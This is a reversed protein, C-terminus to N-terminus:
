PGDIVRVTRLITDCPPQEGSCRGFAVGRDTPIYLTTWADNPFTFHVLTAEEAGGLALREETHATPPVDYDTTAAIYEAVTSRPDDAYPGAFEITTDGPRGYPPSDDRAFDWPVYSSVRADTAATYSHWEIPIDLAIRLGTKTSMEVTRKADPRVVPPADFGAAAYEMAAVYVRDDRGRALVLRAEGRRDAGWGRSFLVAVIPNAPDFAGRLTDTVPPLTAPPTVFALPAASPPRFTRGFRQAAEYAGVDDSGSEPVYRIVFGESIQEYLADLDRRELADTLAAIAPSGSSSSTGAPSDVALDAPAPYPADGAAAAFGATALLMGHWYVRGGADEALVLVAEGAGDAGWGRSFLLQDVVLAPDLLTQLPPDIAPFATRDDTTDVAHAAPPLYQTELATRAASPDLTMGEARYVGLVFADGMMAQLGAYDRSALAARLASLTAPVRAMPTGRPGAAADTGLDVPASGATATSPADVPTTPSPACAAPTSALAVTLAIAVAGASNRSAFASTMPGYM